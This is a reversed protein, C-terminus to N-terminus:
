GHWDSVASTGTTGRAVVRYQMDRGSPISPDTWQGDPPMGAALRVIEPDATPAPTPVPPEGPGAATPVERPPDPTERREIAVEVVEPTDDPAPQEWWITAMGPPTDAEVTVTPEAPLAALFKVWIVAWQETVGYRARITVAYREDYEMVEAAPVTISRVAPGLPGSYWRTLPPLHGVPAGGPGHDTTGIPADAEIWVEAVDQDPIDWEVLMEGTVIEDDPEPTIVTLVGPDRAYFTRAPAWPGWGFNLSWCRASWEVRGDAPFASGSITQETQTPSPIDIVQWAGAPGTDPVHRWRLQSEDLWSTGDSEFQWVFTHAVSRSLTVGDAPAILTPAYVTM